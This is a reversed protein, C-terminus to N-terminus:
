ALSHMKCAILCFVCENIIAPCWCVLSHQQMHWNTWTHSPIIPIHLPDSNPSFLDWKSFLPRNSSFVFKIMLNMLITALEQQKKKQFSWNLVVLLHVYSSNWIGSCIFEWNGLYMKFILINLYPCAASLRHLRSVLCAQASLSALAEHCDVEPKSSYPVAAPSPWPLM